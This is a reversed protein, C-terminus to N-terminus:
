RLPAFTVRTGALAVISGITNSASSSSRDVAPDDGHHAAESTVRRRDVGAPRRRASDRPASPAAPPAAARRARARHHAPLTPMGPPAVTRRRWRAPVTPRRRRGPPQPRRRAVRGTARRTRGAGVRGSPPPRSPRAAPQMMPPSTPVASRDAVRTTGHVGDCAGRGGVAAVGALVLGLGLVVGASARRSRASRM